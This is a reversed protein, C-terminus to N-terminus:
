RCPTAMMSCMQVTAADEIILPVFGDVSQSVLTSIFVPVIFVAENSM